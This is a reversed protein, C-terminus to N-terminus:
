EGQEGKKGQCTTKIHQRMVKRAHSISAFNGYPQPHDKRFEDYVRFTSPEVAFKCQLCEMRWIQHRQPSPTNMWRSGYTLEIWDSM